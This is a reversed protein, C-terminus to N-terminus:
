PFFHFDTKNCLFSSTKAIFGGHIMKRYESRFCTLFFKPTLGLRPGYEITLQSYFLDRCIQNNELRLTTIAVM